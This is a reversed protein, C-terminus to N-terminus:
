EVSFEVKAEAGDETRATAQWDGPQLQWHAETIKQGNIDWEM